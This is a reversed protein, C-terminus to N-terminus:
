EDQGIESEWWVKKPRPVERWILREEGNDNVKVRLGYVRRAYLFPNGGCWMIERTPVGKLTSFQVPYPNNKKNKAYAVRETLSYLKNIYILEVMNRVTSPSLRYNLIAAINNEVKAHDGLCEWTILWAGM